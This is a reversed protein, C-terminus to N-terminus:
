KAFEYKNLLLNCSGITTVADNTSNDYESIGLEITDTSVGRIYLYKGSHQPLSLDISKSGDIPLLKDKELYVGFRNEQSYRINITGAKSIKAKKFLKYEKPMDRKTACTDFYYVGNSKFIQNGINYMFWAPSVTTLDKQRLLGYVVGTKASLYGHPNGKNISEEDYETPLAPYVVFNKIHMKSEFAKKVRVSRGANGGLFIHLKVDNLSLSEWMKFFLEVGEHVKEEFFNNEIDIQEYVDAFNKWKFDDGIENKIVPDLSTLDLDPYIWKKRLEDM